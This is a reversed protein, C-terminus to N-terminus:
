AKLSNEKIIQEIQLIFSDDIDVLDEINFYCSDGEEDYTKLIPSTFINNALEKTRSVVKESAWFRELKEEGTDPDVVTVLPRGTQEVDSFVIKTELPYNEDLLLTAVRKLKILVNWENLLKISTEIATEAPTEIVFRGSLLTINRYSRLIETVIENIPVNRKDLVGMNYMVIFQQIDDFFINKKMVAKTKEVSKENIPILKVIRM